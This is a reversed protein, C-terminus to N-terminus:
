LYGNMQEVEKNIDDLNKGLEEISMAFPSRSWKLAEKRNINVPEESVSPEPKIEKSSSKYELWEDELKFPTYVHKDQRILLKKYNIGLSEYIAIDEEPVREKIEQILKIFQVAFIWVHDPTNKNQFCSGLSDRSYELVPISRPYHSAPRRMVKAVFDYMWYAGKYANEDSTRFVNEGYSGLGFTKIAWFYADKYMQKFKSFDSESMNKLARLNYEMRKEPCQQPVIKPLELTDNYWRKTIYVYGIAIVILGLCSMAATVFVDNM